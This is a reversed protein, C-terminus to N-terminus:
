PFELASTEGHRTRARRSRAHLALTQWDGTLDGGRSWEFVDLLLAVARYHKAIVAKSTKLREAELCGRYSRVVFAELTARGHALELSSQAKEAKELADALAKEIKPSPRDRRMARLMLGAAFVRCYYAVTPEHESLENAYTLYQEVGEDKDAPPLQVPVFSSAVSVVSELESEAAPGDAAVCSRSRRVAQALEVFLTRESAQVLPLDNRNRPLQWQRVSAALAVQALKESTLAARLLQCAGAQGHRVAVILATEGNDRAFAVNADHRLLKEVIATHGAAAAAMLPTVGERTAQNVCAGHCLLEDAICTHGLMAAAFLPSAGTETALCVQARARLLACATALHGHWTAIFLPTSGDEMPVDVEAGLRLLAAVMSTQGPTAGSATPRNPDAGARLLLDALETRRSAVALVLAM